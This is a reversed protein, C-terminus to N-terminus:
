DPIKQNVWTSSLDTLTSLVVIIPIFQGHPVGDTCRREVMQSITELSCRGWECYEFPSRNKTQGISHVNMDRREDNTEGEPNTHAEFHIPVNSDRNSEKDSQKQTSKCDISHESERRNRLGDEASQLTHASEDEIHVEPLFSPLKSLSSNSVSMQRKLQIAEAGSRRMKCHVQDVQGATGSANLQRASCTFQMSKINMYAMVVNKDVMRADGTIANNASMLVAHFSYQINISRLDARNSPSGQRFYVLTFELKKMQMLIVRHTTFIPNSNLIFMSFTFYSVNLIYIKPFNAITDWERIFYKLPGIFVIPRLEDSQLNSARLPMVLNVLCLRPSDNDALVCVVIHGRFNMKIAKERTQM